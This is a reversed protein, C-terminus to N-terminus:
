PTRGYETDYQKVYGIEKNSLDYMPGLLDDVRDVIPKLEASDEFVTRAGGVFRDKMESWLEGSLDKIADANEELTEDDPFPFPKIEWWDINRGNKYVMWYHYYLSSQMILFVCRRELDSDFYMRYMSTPTDQEHDDYLNTLMPNIWYLAGRRRWMLHDTKGDEILHGGITSDSNEKLKEIISRATETGLKPISYNEGSGICDEGLVLGDTPAYSIDSFRESRNDETFRIFQSSLISDGGGDATKRGTIIGPKVHADEFVRSPRHAFCALKGDSLQEYLVERVPEESKDYALRLTIINGYFGDVDLLDFQREVFQAAIDDIGGTAYGEVLHKETDNLVDGYPPNGVVIDFEAAHGTNNLNNQAVEPFEAVWHFVDGRVHNLDAMVAQRTMGEFEFHGDIADRLDSVILQRAEANTSGDDTLDNHRPEVYLRASKTHVRCGISELQRKDDSTLETGDERVIKVETIEPHLTDRPVAEVIEDLEAKDTVEDEFKHTLRKIYQEDLEPRITALVDEVDEKSVEAVKTVDIGDIDGIVDEPISEDGKYAHRLTILDDLRDDWIDATTQGTQQAPLGILSNGSVINLEINPLQDFSEEWGEDVITLWTRLRAIQVAVPDLDVGYISRLVLERKAEYRDEKTVNEGYQGRLLSLQINHLEDLAATLFHGSGCASDLVSLNRIRKVADVMADIRGFWSAGAEIKSQIAELPMDRVDDRFEQEQTVHESYAEIIESRAKERIAQYNVLDTVDDPTYFAGIEKQRNEKESLHNITKEFVSGLIAPDIDFDLETGEVLDRIVTELTRNSVDYERERDVTERFLGGNLYPVNGQWGRQQHPPRDHKETNLLEYFVPDFVTKYLTNPLGDNYARVRELLWDEDLVNREELFKIFLLRNMLEVAFVDADQDPLDGRPQIIDDRLNSEYEDEYEDSKGFLLEIYLEYFADVDSKRQDRLRKPAQRRLLEVLADPAFVDIFKRIEDDVNAGNLQRQGVVGEEEAISRIADRLDVVETFSRYHRGVGGDGNDADGSSAEVRYAAWKIGDTAIGYNPWWMKGLYDQMDQEAEPFNNVSKNEGIIWLDGNDGNEDTEELEFDPIEVDVWDPTEYRPNPRGPQINLGLAEILEEVLIDETWEEPEASLDTRLLTDDGRLIREIHQADSNLEEDLEHIFNTLVDRVAAIVTNLDAPDSNRSTNTM